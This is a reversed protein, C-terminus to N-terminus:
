LSNTRNVVGLVDALRSAISVLAQNRKTGRLGSLPASPPHAAHFEAIESGEYSSPKVPIWFIVLGETEAAQLSTPLERSRIYDSELFAPTVLLVAVQAKALASRIEENFRAGPKIERDTWIEVGQRKLDALHGLFLDFWQKDKHAYSIFVGNRPHGRRYEISIRRLLGQYDSPSELNCYTAGRVFAPILDSDYPGFGIPIYKEPKAERESAIWHWDWWLFPVTQSKLSDPKRHWNCWEGPCEGRDPDSSIYEPTCLLLVCDAEKIQEEAWIIWPDRSDGTRQIPPVFGYKNNADKFYVDLRSDIGSERLQEALKLARDDPIRARKGTSTFVQNGDKDKQNLWTYSIFVKPKSSAKM